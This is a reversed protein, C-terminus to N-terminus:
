LFTSEIAVINRDVGIKFYDFYFRDEDLKLKWGLSQWYPSFFVTLAPKEPCM